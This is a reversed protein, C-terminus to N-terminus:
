RDCGKRLLRRGYGALTLGGAIALALTSPEPVPSTSIGFQLTLSDANAGAGWRWVYTGPTLGLSAFTTTSAFTITGQLTTESVYGTPLALLLAGNDTTLGFRDGTGDSVTTYMGSGFNGPGTLTGYLDATGTGSPGMLLLPDAPAISSAFDGGFALTLDALNATGGGSIVVAGSSETATLLIEAHARPATTAALGLIAAAWALRRM